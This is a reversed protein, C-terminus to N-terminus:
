RIRTVWKQVKLLLEQTIQHTGKYLFSTVEFGQKKLFDRQKKFQELSVYQDSKGVGIFLKLKLSSKLEDETIAQYPFRGGLCAIGDVLHSNRIGVLYALAAGQSFGMLIVRNIKIRKSLEKIVRIVFEETLPDARNWLEKDRTPLFWTYRPKKDFPQPYAYLGQPIAFIFRPNVWGDWLKAFSAGNAGNGHLGVVLSYSKDPNFDDPKEVLCPVLKEGKVYLISDEDATDLPILPSCLYILSIVSWWFGKKFKVKKM